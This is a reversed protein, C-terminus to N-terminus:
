GVGGQPPEEEGAPAPVERPPNGVVTRPAALEVGLVLAVPDQDGSGDVAYLDLPDGCGGAAVLLTTPDLWGLASTPRQEDPLAAVGTTGSLILAQRDDCGSGLDLSKLRGKPALKLNEAVGDTPQNWGTGFGTRDELDMWHLEALGGEHAATWWLQKGNPTFAISPFTTGVESFVLRQPDTGENTSLWIEQGEAGEVVFALALGSPHYAVELYRGEPLSMLREVRGDDLYRKRPHGKGDAFVVALGLPHGWDFPGLQVHAPPFDPADAALGRIEFGGLLVRDGQPGWAFPAPDDIPFLCAVDGDTPDLAWARGDAVFAVTHSSGAGGTCGEPLPSGDPLRAGSPEVSPSPEQTPQPPPEPTTGTRTCAGVLALLAFTPRVWRM